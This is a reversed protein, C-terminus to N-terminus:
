LRGNIIRFATGHCTMTNSSVSTLDWQHNLITFPKTIDYIYDYVDIFGM